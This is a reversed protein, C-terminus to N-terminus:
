PKPPKGTPAKLSSHGDKNAGVFAIADDVDSASGVFAASIEDIV